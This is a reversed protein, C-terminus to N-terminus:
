YLVTVELDMVGVRLHVGEGIGSFYRVASPFQWTAVANLTPNGRLVQEINEMLTECEEDAEDVEVDDIKTSWVGGYVKVMVVSQRKAALQTAAFDAAEIRKSEVRVSVYPYYDAEIPIIEPNVKFVRQVRKAMDDSLDHTATTTNAAEFISQLQTKLNNLDLAM